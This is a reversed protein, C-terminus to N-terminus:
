LVNKEEYSLYLCTRSISNQPAPMPFLKVPICRPSPSAWIRRSHGSAWTWKTEPNFPSGAEMMWPSPKPSKGQILHPIYSFLNISYAKQMQPLKRSTKKPFTNSVRPSLQSLNWLDATTPLGKTYLDWHIQWAIAQECVICVRKLHTSLIQLLHSDMLFDWIACGEKGWIWTSYKNVESPDPSWGRCWHVSGLACILYITTYATNALM